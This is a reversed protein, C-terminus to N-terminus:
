LRAVTKPHMPGFCGVVEASALTTSGPSWRADTSSTNTSADPPSVRLRIVALPPANSAGMPGYVASPVIVHCTTADSSAPLGALATPGATAAEALQQARAARGARDARGRRPACEATARRAREQPQQQDEAAEDHVDGHDLDEAPLLLVARDVFHDGYGPERM